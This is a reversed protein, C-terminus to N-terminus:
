ENDNNGKLTIDEETVQQQGASAMDIEQKSPVSDVPLYITVLTGRGEESDIELKGKHLNVIENTVALGIGSGRVSVNAKYFKDFVHPLDKKSIGCGQDAISIKVAPGGNLESFEAKVFIKSPARSYKLANDLINMFVQKLRNPDADAPAAIEPISYRVEIGERMARECFTFVTEGLEAFIDVKVLRLIMRGSQLRSFDLLEEVFGELRGSEKVIVQLGKVTLEDQQIEKSYFLTEAWGKISTLPTRLEHSITSIFDNKMKDATAIESAMSNISDCLNGIEDDYKKEIRSDLNGGAIKKTTETIERIPIIISRIFFLNSLLIIAFIFLTILFLIFILAGIQADVEGISAMVRVAGVNTGRSNQIVRSLAMIKDGDETIRGIYEGTGSESSMAASYDPMSCNEIIFGNSSAIVEGENNIVWVTTKDKYSYSDIFQAASSELSMGSDLNASFYESSNVSAGSELINKVSGYYYNKIFVSAAVFAAILLVVVVLLINLIYRKTLGDIRFNHLKKALRNKM